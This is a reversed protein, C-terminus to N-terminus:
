FIKVKKKLIKVKIPLKYGGSILATKALDFSVGDIEFLIKGAKVKIAWYKTVGTGKGIRVQTPRKTVGLDPFLLVWLRGTRILHRNITQRAAEIQSAKLFCSNQAILGFKGYILNKTKQDYNHIRGKQVKRYKTKRPILLM